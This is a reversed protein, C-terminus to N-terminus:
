APDISLGINSARARDAASTMARVQTAPTGVTTAVGARAVPVVPTVVANSMATVLLSAVAQGAL